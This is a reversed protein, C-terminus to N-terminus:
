VLRMLDMVELRVERLYMRINNKWRRRPRGLPRKWELKEVLIKYANGMECCIQEVSSGNQIFYFTSAVV